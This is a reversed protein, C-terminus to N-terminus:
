LSVIQLTKDYPVMKSSALAEMAAVNCLLDAEAVSLTLSCCIRNVFMDAQWVRSRQTGVTNRIDLLAAHMAVIGAVAQVCQM